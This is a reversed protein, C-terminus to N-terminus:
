PLPFWQGWAGVFLVTKGGRSVTATKFFVWDRTNSRSAADRTFILSLGAPIAGWRTPAAGPNETPPPFIYASSLIVSLFLSIYFKYM